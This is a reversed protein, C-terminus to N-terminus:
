PKCNLTEPNLKPNPNPHLTQMQADLSRFAHAGAAVWACSDISGEDAENCYNWSETYGSWGAGRAQRRHVRVLERHPLRQQRLEQPLLLQAGVAALSRARMSPRLVASLTGSSAAPSHPVERHWDTGILAFYLGFVVM